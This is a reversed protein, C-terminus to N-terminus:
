ARSLPKKKGGRQPKMGEAVGPHEAALADLRATVREMRRKLYGRNNRMKGVVIQTVRVSPALDLFYLGADFGNIAKVGMPGWDTTLRRYLVEERRDPPLALLVERGLAHPTFPAVLDWRAELAVGARVLPVFAILAAADWDYIGLHNYGATGERVYPRDPSRLTALRDLFPVAWGVAEAGHRDLTDLLRQEIPFGHIDYPELVSEGAAEIIEAPTLLELFPAPLGQNHELIAEPAERWAKWVPWTVAAGEHTWAIRREMASPPAVGLWRRLLRQSSPLGWGGVHLDERLLAHAVRLMDPTLEEPLALMEWQPWRDKFGALAMAEEAAAQARAPDAEDRVTALLADLTM